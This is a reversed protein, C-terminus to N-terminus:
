AVPTPPPAATGPCWGRQAGIKLNHRDVRRHPGACGRSRRFRARGPDTGPGARAALPVPPRAPYQRGCPGCGGRRDQPQAPRCAPSRRRLM